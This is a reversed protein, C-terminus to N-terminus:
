RVVLPYAVQPLGGIQALHGPVSAVGWRLGKVQALARMVKPRTAPAAILTPACTLAAKSESVNERAPARGAGSGM